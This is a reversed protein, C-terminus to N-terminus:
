EGYEYKGGYYKEKVYERTDFDKRFPPIEEWDELFLPNLNQNGSFEIGFMEHNEREHIQAGAWLDTISEISPDPERPIRTKITGRLKLEHSWLHYVLEFEEDNIYDICAVDSLHDFGVDKLLSLVDHIDSKDVKASFNDGETSVESIEVESELSSLITAGWETLEEYEEEPIKESTSTEEEKETKSWAQIESKAYNSNILDILEDKRMKSYGSLEKDRAMDKLTDLTKEELLESKTPM